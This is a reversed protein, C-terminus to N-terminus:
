QGEECLSVTQKPAAAFPPGALMGRIDEGNVRRWEHLIGVDWGIRSPKVAMSPEGAELLARLCNLRM